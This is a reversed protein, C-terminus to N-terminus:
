TRGTLMLFNATNAIQVGVPDVGAYATFSRKKGQLYYVVAAPIIFNTLFVSRFGREMGEAMGKNEGRFFRM